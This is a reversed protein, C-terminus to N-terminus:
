TIKCCIRKCINDYNKATNPFSHMKKMFKVPMITWLNSQGVRFENQEGEEKVYEKIPM